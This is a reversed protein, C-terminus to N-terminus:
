QSILLSAAMRFTAGPEDFPAGDHLGEYEILLDAGPIVDATLDTIVPPVDKGPCFGARGFWWTGYQNPVTGESVRDICATLSGIEPFTLEHPTGGVTFTHTTPCLEACDAAGATGHGTLTTVLEVKTADAPITVTVPAFAQNYTADFPFEGSWLPVTQTPREKKGTNSLRLSATVLYPEDTRLAFRATDAAGLLPLAATADVVWRGERQYPTVWRAVEVDCQDPAAPDCLSLTVTRGGPPCDGLEADGECRLTLDVKLTDFASMMQGPPLDVEAFVAGGPAAADPAAADEFLTVVVGGETALARERAAEFDYLVPENAVMALSPAFWGVDADYRTPDSYSGIFRIRQLRDIALGWGPSEMLPGLWGPLAGAAETVFHLHGKWGDADEAPLMALADDVKAQLAALAETRAAPDAAVSVFFVQVNRPLAALTEAVDREWIGVPWNANQVPEDQIFLHSECGSWRESVTFDGETTPVTVDSAVAWREAIEPAKQFPLKPLGLAECVDGAHSGGDGGTGTSTSGGAGTGGTSSSAGGGGTEAPRSSCGSGTLAMGTLGVFLRWVIGRHVRFCM